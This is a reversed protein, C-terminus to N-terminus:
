SKPARSPDFPPPATSPTVKEDAYDRLLAIWLANKSFWGDRKARAMARDLVDQPIGNIALSPSQNRSSPMTGVISRKTM